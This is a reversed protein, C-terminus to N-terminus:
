EYDLKKKAKLASLLSSHSLKHTTQLIYDAIVYTFLCFALNKEIFM